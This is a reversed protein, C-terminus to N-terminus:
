MVMDEDLGHLGVLPQLHTQSTGLIRMQEFAGYQNEMNQIRQRDWSASAKYVPDTAQNHWTTGQLLKAQHEYDRQALTEYGSLIYPEANNLSNPPLDNTPVSQEDEMAQGQTPTQPRHQRDQMQQEYRLKAMAEEQPLSTQHWTGIQRALNSDGHSPPAIRWLELLRLRQDDDANQVLNIQAPSLSAPEIGNRLLVAALGPQNIHRSPSDGSTKPVTHASHHYHQTVYTIPQTIVRQEEPQNMPQEIPSVPTSDSFNLSRNFLGLLEEQQM